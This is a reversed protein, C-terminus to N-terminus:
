SSILMTIACTTKWKKQSMNINFDGLIVLIENQHFHCLAKTITNFISSLTAHVAAYINIIALHSGRLAVKAILVEVSQDEYHMHELIPLHKKVLKMVGHKTCSSICNFSPFQQNQMSLTMYTEQLCLIDSQMTDYDNLIDNMHAHLSRTNLTLISINTSSKISEFDYALNWKAIRRLRQMETDIKQKV